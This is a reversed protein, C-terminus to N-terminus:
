KMNALLEELNEPITVNLKKALENNIVLEYKDAFEVAMNAPNEGKLIRVAMLGTKYGLDFYKISLTALGGDSIMGSEGVIIPIDNAATSVTSMANSIMNDTPIFLADVKDALRTNIVSVIDNPSSVTAEVTSLGLKECVAKALDVQIRSNSESDSFLFGVTKANPVLLKLLKIQKEVPNLDSTGTINKGPNANSAVLGTEKSAPATVATFLVPIDTIKAQTALAAPTAIALVLDLNMSSYTNAITQCQSMDANANQYTVKLNKGDVYGNDELAQIFGKHADVLADFEGFQLIAIKTQTNSCGGFTFALSFTLVMLLLITLAKKM